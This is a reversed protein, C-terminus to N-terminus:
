PHPYVYYDIQAPWSRVNVWITYDLPNYEFHNVTWTTTSPEGSQRVDGSWSACIFANSTIINGYTFVHSGVAGTATGTVVGDYKGYWVGNFYVKTWTQSTIAISADAVPTPTPTPTPSPTPTPTPTASFEATVAKNSNMAVTAPGTGSADGSWGTFTSGLTPVATLTVSTSKLYRFCGDGCNLGDEMGTVFGSGNGTTSIALNSYSGLINTFISGSNAFAQQPVSNPNKSDLLDLAGISASVYGSTFTTLAEDAGVIPFVGEIIQDIWLEKILEKGGDGMYSIISDYDASTIPRGLENNILPESILLACLGVVGPYITVGATIVPSAVGAANAVSTGEFAPAIMKTLGALELGVKQLHKADNFLGTMGELVNPYLQHDVCTIEDTCGTSVAVRANRSNAVVSDDRGNILYAAYIRDLLGLSTKDLFLTKGAIQGLSIQNINGNVLAQLQSQQAALRTQLLELNARLASTNVAGGSAGEIIKWSQAAGGLQQQLQKLVELTVTGNSLGTQPLDNIQFNDVPGYLVKGGPMQQVLTVSVVGASIIFKQTDLFVPVAVSATTATRNAARVETQGGFQDTFVFDIAINPDFGSATAILTDGPSAANSSLELPGTLVNYVEVLGVGTTNNKGSVIATYNGPPASKVVASERKDSPALRLARLLLAQDSDDKWDDNSAITTGNGNHLELMPDALPNQIGSSSLSPGLARVLMRSGTAGTPGVIIGGIMVNNGTDVFGRTSINALKSDAAQNLDYAEVLAVGTGNNKGRVIATYGGPALTAVIASELDNTPPITTDLIVQKQTDKWNDNTFILSGSGDHLELIPDALADSIGFATLSPGIARVIVKKPDSGTIIFGGILVNEGGLVRLRTSINLLKGESPTSTPTATPTATPTLTPSPTATPTPTPTPMAPAISLIDLEGIYGRGGVYGGAFYIKGSADDGAAGGDGGHSTPVLSYNMSWTNSLPDYAQVMNDAAGGSGSGVIFFKGGLVTSQGLYAGAIPMSAIPTWSGPNNPDFVLADSLTHTGDSGCALYIKGNIAEAVMGVRGTPLPTGVSWTNNSPDYIDVRSFFTPPNGDGQGGIVYVKGNLSVATLNWRAGGPLVALNTAWINSATDYAYNTARSLSGGTDGGIVYIRTGVVACGYFQRLNYGSDAPLPAGTTWNNNTPNYIAVRNTAFGSIAYFKGNVFKACLGYSPTPMSPGVTWTGDQGGSASGIHSFFSLTIILLLIKPYRRKMNNVHTKRICRL